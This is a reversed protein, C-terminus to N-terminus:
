KSAGIVRGTEDKIPSVTLSVHILRGDRHLRVTDFHEVREGARWRAVIQDEEDIRDPPIITSIHKGIVENATHGFTREAAANWSQIVGDLNKSVIADESSEVISALFRADALREANQKELRRRETIDHFVLVVGLLNGQEDKIPAASDDIPREIGDRSILVTS